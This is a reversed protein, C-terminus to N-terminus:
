EGYWLRSFALRPVRAVTRIIAWAGRALLVPPAGLMLLFPAGVFRVFGEDSMRKAEGMAEKASECFVWRELLYVSTSFPERLARETRSLRNREQFRQLWSSRRIEPLAPWDLETLATVPEAPWPPNAEKKM